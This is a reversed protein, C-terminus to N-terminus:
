SLHTASFAVGPAPVKRGRLNLCITLEGSHRLEYDFDKLASFFVEECDEGHLEICINRVRHLWSGASEGFVALEAREIDVKLLDVSESGAMDILSGVDWAQVDESADKAAILEDVQTAWERGDGFTGKLVRLKAPRSWAAGHLLLVRDGYPSLNAKCMAINRADPEVAVVHAQPFVNLFYASSYGTNAGLDVVVMTEKLGLLCAYEREIFIQYFVRMDSSGRLRAEVPHRLLRPRLHWSAPESVGLKVAVRLCEWRVAAIFGASVMLGTFVRFHDSTKSLIRM